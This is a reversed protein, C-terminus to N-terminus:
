PQSGDLKEPPMLLEYPEVELEAALDDVTDLAPRREGRELMGIYNRHVDVRDALDQQSWGDERSVNRKCAECTADFITVPRFWPHGGRLGPDEWDLCQTWVRGRCPLEDVLRVVRNLTREM